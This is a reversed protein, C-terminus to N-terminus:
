HEEAKTRLSEEANTLSMTRQGKRSPVMPPSPSRGLGGGGEELATSPGASPM